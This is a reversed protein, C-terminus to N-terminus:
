SEHDEVGEEAGSVPANSWIPMGPMAPTFSYCVNAHVTIGEFDRLRLGIM